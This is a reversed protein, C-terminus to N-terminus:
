NTNEGSHLDTVVDLAGILFWDLGSGGTLLDTQTDDFVTVDKKLQVGSSGAGSRLNTVRDTYSLNGNWENVLALLAHDNATLKHVNTGSAQLNLLYGAILIDDSGGAVLRDAGAGGILINRGSGGNLKDDGEGGDLVAPGGGANLEDNGPGGHAILSHTISGAVTLKDDGDCLYVLILNATVDAVQFYRFNAEPFFNAHVKFKGNGLENITVQDNGHTGVVQLVGNNIGAGTVFAVTTATAMGGDDDKVTVTITYVGGAAYAHSGTLVGTTPNGPSGDTKVITINPVTQVTGDGWNITSTTFTETSGFGPDSFNVTINVAQNEAVNGCDEANQSVTNITPAVNNVTLVPSTKTDTGTDDDNITIAVTFTDSATGSSPHDDGFTRTTSFTNGTITVVSSVGDSWLASGTFTETVVGFAPDTFSGTVTVSQGENISSSSLAIPGITPRVNVVNVTASDFVTRDDFTISLQVTVVSPGDLGAASFTPNLGTEGAEGFIGNGNLDWEFISGVPAISSVASLQVSGGENVFYPGGAEAVFAPTGGDDDVIIITPTQSLDATANTVSVVRVVVDENGEVLSDDVATVTLTGSGTGALIVIQTGSVTYDTGGGIAVGSFSLNVTVDIAANVPDGTGRDFLTATITSVGGAEGILSPSVTLVVVPLDDDVITTTVQQEGLEVVFPNDSSVSDIAVVITEDGELETDQLATLTISASSSNAPIVIQTASASYDTGSFAGGSFVLNVTVAFPSSGASSTIPDFLTATVTAVGSAETISAPSVTLVVGLAGSEAIYTTAQQTGGETGNTVSLIDVIVSELPDDETDNLATITATASSSGAPIVISTASASYDTGFFAAGSFGLEVTVDVTTVVSSRDEVSTVLRAKITAVGGNEAIGGPTVSLVVTPNSVVPAPQEVITITAQQVGLENAGTASSIDVIVTENPDSLGDDVALIAITASSSGAPIVVSTTNTETDVIVGSLTYDSGYTASGSLDLFVTVNETAQFPTQTDPFVLSVTITGAGGENITAPSNLLVDPITETVTIEASGTGADDDTVDATITFPGNSSHAHSLSFTRTTPNWNIGNAIATLSTTGLAFSQTNNASSPDGWNLNLTFTDLTGPDSITGTLTSTTGALIASLSVSPDLNTVTAAATASAESSGTVLITYQDLPNTPDDLYQHFLSLTGDGPRGDSGVPFSQFNGDGWAVDVTEEGSFNFNLQLTDGENGSLVSSGLIDVALLCRDELQEFRLKRLQSRKASKRLRRANRRSMLQKSSM